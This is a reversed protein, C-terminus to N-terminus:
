LTLFGSHNPIRSWVITRVCKSQLDFTDRKLPLFNNTPIAITFNILILKCNWRNRLLDYTKFSLSVKQMCKSNECDYRESRVIASQRYRKERDFQPIEKPKGM